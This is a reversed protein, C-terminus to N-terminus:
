AFYRLLSLWNAPEIHDEISWCAAMVLQVYCWDRIREPSFGLLSSFKCIRNQILELPNDNLVIDPM